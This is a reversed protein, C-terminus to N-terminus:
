VSTTELFTDELFCGAGRTRKRKRRDRAGHTVGKVSFEVRFSCRGNVRQGVKLATQNCEALPATPNEEKFFFAM